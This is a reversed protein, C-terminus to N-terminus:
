KIWIKFVAKKVHSPQSGVMSGTLHADEPDLFLYDGEKCLISSDVKATLAVYDQEENYSDIKDSEVRGVKIVEEGSIIYHLDYYTRHAEWICKEDPRTDYELINVYLRDGDIDHRGLSFSALDLNSLYENVKTFIGEYYTSKNNRDLKIM